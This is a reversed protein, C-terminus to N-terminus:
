GARSRRALAFAATVALPVGILDIPVVYFITVGLDLLLFNLGVALWCCAIAWLIAQVDSDGRM